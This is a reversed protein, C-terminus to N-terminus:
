RARVSFRGSCWAPPVLESRPIASLDVFRGPATQTGGTGYSFHSTSLPEGKSHTQIADARRLRKARLILQIEAARDAM